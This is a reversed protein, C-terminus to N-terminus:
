EQCKDEAGKGGHRKEIGEEIQEDLSKASERRQM